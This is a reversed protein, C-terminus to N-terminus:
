ADILPVKALVGLPPPCPAQLPWMRYGHLLVKLSLIFVGVWGFSKVYIHEAWLFLLSLNPIFVSLIVLWHSACSSLWWTCLFWNRFNNIIRNIIVSLLRDFSKESLSCGAASQFLHVSGCAIITYLKPIKTSSNLYLNLLGVLLGFSEVLKSGKTDGMTQVVLFCAHVRDQSRCM